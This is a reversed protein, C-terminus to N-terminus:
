PQILTTQAFPGYRTETPTYVETWDVSPDESMIRGTHGTVPATKAIERAADYSLGDISSLREMGRWIQACFPIGVINPRTSM